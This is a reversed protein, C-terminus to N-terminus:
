PRTNGQAALDEWEPLNNTARQFWDGTAALVLPRKTRNASTEAPAWVNVHLCAESGVVGGSSRNWQACPPRPEVAMVVECPDSANLPEPKAFRREGEPSSAYPVGLWRHLAVDGAATVTSGVVRGVSTTIVVAGQPLNAIPPCGSTAMDTTTATDTTANSDMPSPELSAGGRATGHAKVLLAAVVAAVILGVIAVAAVIPMAVSKPARQEAVPVGSAEQPAATAMDAATHLSTKAAPTKDQLQGSTHVVPLAPGADSRRRAGKDIASNATNEAPRAEEKHASAKRHHKKQGRRKDQTSGEPAAASSVINSAHKSAETTRRM